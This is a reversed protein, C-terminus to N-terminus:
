TARPRRRALLAMVVIVAAPIVLYLATLEPLSYALAVPDAVRPACAGPDCPAGGPPPLSAWFWWFAVPAAPLLVVLRALTPGRLFVALFGFAAAVTLGALMLWFAIPIWPLRGQGYADEFSTGPQGLILAGMHLLLTLLGAAAAALGAVVGYGSIRWLSDM